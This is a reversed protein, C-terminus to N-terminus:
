DKWYPLHNLLWQGFIYYAVMKVTMKCIGWLAKFVFNLVKMKGGNFIHLSLTQRKM